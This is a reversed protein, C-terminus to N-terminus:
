PIATWGTPIETSTGDAFVQYVRAGGIRGGALPDFWRVAGAGELDAPQSIPSAVVALSFLQVRAAVGMAVERAVAALSHVRVATSTASPEVVAALSLVRTSPM